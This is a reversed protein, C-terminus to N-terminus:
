HCRKIMKIWMGDKVPSLYGLNFGDCISNRRHLKLLSLSKVSEVRLLVIVGIFDRFKAPTEASTKSRLMKFKGTKSGV